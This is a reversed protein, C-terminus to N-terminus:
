NRRADHDVCKNKALLSPHSSTSILDLNEWNITARSLHKRFATQKERVLRVPSVLRCACKRRKTSLLLSILFTLSAVVGIVASTAVNAKISIFFGTFSTVVAILVSLIMMRELSHSFEYAAAAPAVLMVVTLISGVVRLAVVTAVAMLLIMFYHIFRVRVGMAEAGEEDFTIFKFEKYFVWVLCVSSITFAFLIALEGETVGLVDGLLFSWAAVTYASLMSIFLIALSTSFGFSVGLIIDMRGKGEEGVFATALAFFISLLFAGLIPEIGLIVGLVAGALSAHAIAAGMTSLGRLVTFTGIVATMISSFLLALLARIILPSSLLESM